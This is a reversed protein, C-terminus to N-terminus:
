EAFSQKYKPYLVKWIILINVVGIIAAIIVVWTEPILRVIGNMDGGGVFRYFVSLYIPDLILLIISMYWACAKVIKSKIHCIPGAMIALLWGVFLTAIAGAICFIGMQTNTMMHAHVDIQVGVIGMLNIRKFVGQWLAVALHAGEHVIYYSLVAVAIGIYQRFKKNM